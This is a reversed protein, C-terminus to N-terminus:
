IKRISVSRELPGRLTSPGSHPHTQTNIRYGKFLIHGANRNM